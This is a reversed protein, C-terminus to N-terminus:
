FGLTRSPHGRPPKATRDAGEDAKKKQKSMTVGKGEAEFVAEAVERAGV